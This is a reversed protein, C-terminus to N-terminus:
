NFSRTDVSYWTIKDVFLQLCALLCLLTAIGAYKLGLRM